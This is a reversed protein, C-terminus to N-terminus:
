RMSRSKASIQRVTTKSSRAIFPPIFRIIDAMIHYPLATWRDRIASSPQVGADQLQRAKLYAVLAGRRHKWPNTCLAYVWTAAPQRIYADGCALDNLISFAARLAEAPNNCQMSWPRAGARIELPRAGTHIELEEVCFGVQRRQPLVHGQFFARFQRLEAIDMWSSPLKVQEVVLQLASDVPGGLHITDLADCRLFVGIRSFEPMTIDFGLWKM